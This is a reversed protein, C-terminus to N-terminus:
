VKFDTSLAIEKMKESTANLSQLKAELMGFCDTGLPVRLEWEMGVALGTGMVVEFIRLAGKEPDGPQKEHMGSLISDIDLYGEIKQAAPKGQAVEGLFNTRFIGPEVLHVRIGFPKVENALSESLGEVAYKSAAYVPAGQGAWIGVGSSIQVIIGSKQARMHPLIAKTFNLLGFFNVDFQYRADAETVEELAGMLGFGANNVLVDIRGHRAVAADIASTVSSAPGAIEIEVLDARPQDRLSQPFKSASRAAAIVTHGQSLVLQSLLLGFGANAGTIFWILNTSAMSNSHPQPLYTKSATSSLHLFTLAESQSIGESLPGEM